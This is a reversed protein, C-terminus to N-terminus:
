TDEEFELPCRSGVYKEPYEVVEGNLKCRRSNVSYFRCQACKVDANGKLDIPFYAKVECAGVVYGSVGSEFTM